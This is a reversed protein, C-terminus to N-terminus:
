SVISIHIQFIYSNPSFLSLLLLLLINLHPLYIISLRNSFTNSFTIPLLYIYSNVRWVTCFNPFTALSRNFMQFFGM